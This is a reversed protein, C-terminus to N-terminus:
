QSRTARQPAMRIWERTLAESWEDFSLTPAQATPPTTRGCAITFVLVILAITRRM